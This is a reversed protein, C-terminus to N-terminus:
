KMCHLDLRTIHWGSSHFFIRERERISEVSTWGNKDKTHRITNCLLKQLFAGWGSLEGVRLIRPRTIILTNFM